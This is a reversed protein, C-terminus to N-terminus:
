RLPWPMDALVLGTRRVYVAFDSNGSGLSLTGLLATVLAYGAAVRLDELDRPMPLYCRDGDVSVHVDRHLLTGHYLIDFYGTWASPNPCRLAWPEHYEGGATM